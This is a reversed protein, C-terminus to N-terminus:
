STEKQIFTDFREIIDDVFRTDHTFFHDGGDYVKLQSLKTPDSELSLELWRNESDRHDESGNMYLIPFKFNPIHIAPSVSHLCEIQEKSSDFFMGAGFTSEVLKYDAPSKNTVDKMASMLGANSM